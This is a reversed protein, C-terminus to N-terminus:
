RQLKEIDHKFREYVNRGFAEIEQRAHANIARPKDFDIGDDSSWTWQGCYPEELGPSEQVRWIVAGGVLVTKHTYWEVSDASTHYRPKGRRAQTVFQEDIQMTAVPALGEAQARADRWRRIKFPVVKYLHAM